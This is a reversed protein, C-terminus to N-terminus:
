LFFAVKRLVGGGLSMLKRVPEPPRTGGALKAMTGHHREDTAMRRLIAASKTDAPPLRALHDNLHAEVQRETEEIFGLSARDGFLGAACGIALSGGYWFPALLSPRGGLERLRTACWALHAREEAAASALHERTRESRALLAQGAYLAQAALEGAHNVRMLARSARVEHPALAAEPLDGAPSPEAPPPDAALSRLGQDIASILYDQRSLRRM